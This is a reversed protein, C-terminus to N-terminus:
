DRLDRVLKVASKKSRLHLRPHDKIFINYPHNPDDLDQTRDKIPGIQAAVRSRYIVTFQKREEEIAKLIEPLKLRLEKASINQRM